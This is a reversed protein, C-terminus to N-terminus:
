KKERMLFDHIRKVRQQNVEDELVKKKLELEDIIAFDPPNPASLLM